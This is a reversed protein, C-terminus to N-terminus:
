NMSVNSRPYTVTLVQYTKNKQHLPLSAGWLNERKPGVEAVRGNGFEETGRGKDIKCSLRILVEEERVEGGGEGIWVCAHHSDVEATAVVLGCAM